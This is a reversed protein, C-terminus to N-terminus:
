HKSKTNSSLSLYRVNFIRRTATFQNGFKDIGEQRMAPAHYNLYDDLSEQSNLTYSCTIKQPNQQEELIKAELFGKFTLMQGVHTILWAKYSECIDPHLEINVEYIIM